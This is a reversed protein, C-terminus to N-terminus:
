KMYQWKKYDQWLQLCGSFFIGVGVGWMGNINRHM